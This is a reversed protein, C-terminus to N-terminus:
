KRKRNYFKDNESKLKKELRFYEKIIDELPEEEEEKNKTPILDIKDVIEEDTENTEEKSIEEDNLEVEKELKELIFKLFNTQLYKKKSM